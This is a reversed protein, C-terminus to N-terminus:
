QCKNYIMFSFLQCKKKGEEEEKFCPGVECDQSIRESHVDSLGSDPFAQRDRNPNFTHQTGGCGAANREKRGQEKKKFFSANM